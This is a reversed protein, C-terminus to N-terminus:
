AFTTREVRAGLEWLEEFLPPSGDDKTRMLLCSNGAAYNAKLENGRVSAVLACLRM